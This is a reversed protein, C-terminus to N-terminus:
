AGVIRYRGEDHSKDFYLRRKISLDDALSSGRYDEETVSYCYYYYHKPKKFM